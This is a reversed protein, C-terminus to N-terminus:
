DFRCPGWISVPRRCLGLSERMGELWGSRYMALSMSAVDVMRWEDTSRGRDDVAQDAALVALLEAGDDHGIPVEIWLGVPDRRLSSSPKETLYREHHQDFHATRREVVTADGGFSTARAASM